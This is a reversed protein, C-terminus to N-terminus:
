IAPPPELPPPLEIVSHVHDNRIAIHASSKACVPEHRDADWVTGRGRLDVPIPDFGNVSTECCDHGGIRRLPHIHVVAEWVCDWDFVPMAALRRVSHNPERDVLPISHNLRGSLLHP